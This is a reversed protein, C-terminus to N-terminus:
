NRDTQACSPKTIRREVITFCLATTLLGNAAVIAGATGNILRVRRPRTVQRYWCPPKRWRGRVASSSPTRAPSSRRTWYRSWHTSAGAVRPQSSRKSSDESVRSIPRRLRARVRCGVVRAARLNSAAAPSHDLVRAIDEFPMGFTDHLVFALREAPELTELVVLM